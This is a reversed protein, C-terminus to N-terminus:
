RSIGYHLAGRDYQTGVAPFFSNSLDVARKSPPSATTFDNGACEGDDRLLEAIGVFSVCAQFLRICVAIRQDGIEVEFQEIAEVALRSDFGEFAAHIQASLGSGRERRGPSSKAGRAVPFADLQCFLRQFGRRRKPV